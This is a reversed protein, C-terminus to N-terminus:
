IKRSLADRKRDVRCAASSWPQLVLCAVKSFVMGGLGATAIEEYVVNMKFGADIFEVYEKRRESARSERRHLAAVGLGATNLPRMFAPIAPMRKRRVGVTKEVISPTRSVRGWMESFYITAFTFKAFQSNPFYGMMDGKHIVFLNLRDKLFDALAKHMPSFFLLVRASFADTLMARKWFALGNFAPMDGDPTKTSRGVNVDDGSIDWDLANSVRVSSAQGGGTRHLRAGYDNFCCLFLDAVSDM